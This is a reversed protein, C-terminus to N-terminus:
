HHLKMEQRGSYLGYVVASSLFAGLYQAIWYPIVQVTCMIQLTVVGLMTLHVVLLCELVVHM